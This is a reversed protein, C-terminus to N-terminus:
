QRATIYKYVIVGNPMVDDTRRLFGDTVMQEITKILHPTKARDLAKAIDMRTLEQYTCSQLIIRQTEQSGRWSAKHRTKTQQSRQTVTEDDFGLLKRQETSYLEIKTM